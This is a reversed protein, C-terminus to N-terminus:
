DLIIEEIIELGAGAQDLCLVWTENENNNLKILSYNFLQTLSDLCADSDQNFVDEIIASYLGMDNSIIRFVNTAFVVGSCKGMVTHKILELISPDRSVYDELGLSHEFRHILDMLEGADTADFINGSVKVKYYSGGTAYAKAEEESLTLYIAAGHILGQEGGFRSNEESYSLQTLGKAHSGHYCIM